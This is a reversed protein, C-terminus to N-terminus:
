NEISKVLNDIAAKFQKYDAVIKLAIKKTPLEGRIAKAVYNGSMEYKDTMTRRFMPLLRNEIVIRSDTNM